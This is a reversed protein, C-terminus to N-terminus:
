LKFKKSILMQYTLLVIRVIRQYNRILVNFISNSLHFLLIDIFMTSSRGGVQLVHKKKSLYAELDEEDTSQSGTNSLGIRQQPDNLAELKRRAVQSARESSANNSENQIVKPVSDDMPFSVPASNWQDLESMLWGPRHKGDPSSREVEKNNNTALYPSDEINANENESLSRVSSDGDDGNHWQDLESVLWGPREVKGKHGEENVSGSVDNNSSIVGEYNDEADDNRLDDNDKFKIYRSSFEAEENEDMSLQKDFVGMEPPTFEDDYGSAESNQRRFYHGESDPSHRVAILRRETIADSETNDGRQAAKLKALELVLEDKKLYIQLFLCFMVVIM